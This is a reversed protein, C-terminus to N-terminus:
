LDTCLVHAPIANQANTVFLTSSQLWSMCIKKFLTFFVPVWSKVFRFHIRASHKHLGGRATLSANFGFIHHGCTQAGESFTQAPCVLSSNFLHLQLRPGGLLLGSVWTSPLTWPLLFPENVSINKQTHTLTRCNRWVIVCVWRM